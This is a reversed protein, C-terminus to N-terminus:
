NLQSYKITGFIPSEIHRIYKADAKTNLTLPAHFRRTLCKKRMVNQAYLRHGIALTGHTKVDPTGVNRPSFPM